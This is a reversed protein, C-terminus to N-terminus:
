HTTRSTPPDRFVPTTGTRSWTEFAEHTAGRQRVHPLVDPLPPSDAIHATRVQEPDLPDMLFPFSLRAGLLVVTHTGPLAASPVAFGEAGAVRMREALLRTPTYDEAILQAPELGHSAAQDFGIEVVPELDLTAAWLRLRLHPLDELDRIGEARLMEAAPGMPHTSWYQVLDGPANFRGGSRSPNVRWPTDWMAHRYLTTAM